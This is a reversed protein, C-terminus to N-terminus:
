LLRRLSRRGPGGSLVCSFTTVTVSSGVRTPGAVGVAVGARPRRTRTAIAAPTLARARPPNAPPPTASSVAVVGTAGTAVTAVAGTSGAVTDGTAASSGVRTSRVDRRLAEDLGV